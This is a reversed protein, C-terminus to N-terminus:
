PHAVNVISINTEIYGNIESDSSQRINVIRQSEM